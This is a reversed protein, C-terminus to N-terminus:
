QAHWDLANVLATWADELSESEHYMPIAKPGLAFTLGAVRDVPNTSVRNQMEELASFVGDDKKLSQVSEVQKHVRTLLDDVNNCNKNRSLLQQDMPRGATDGAISWQIGVEQLTWARRLWCWDSDLDGEKLPRGLGCMYIVVWASDYVQGITPVDLKWEETRLDERPRGQQRLCLVDLWTYEAGLNLMEIWIQELSAGKPIPVPWEKGNIPTWVDVRDKEDVWAHTIPQPWIGVTWWPVVHNSCLDWVRRPPLHPNVIRNRDLAKQRMERDMEEHRLLEEQINSDDNRNWVQRLCGYATGFDYNKSIYDELISSLSRADLTHPTGLTDRIKYLVGQVGLTACPIDALSSTIAPKQGTYSRQNPVEISM